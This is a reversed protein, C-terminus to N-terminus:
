FKPLVKQTEHFKNLYLKLNVLNKHLSTNSSPQPFQKIVQLCLWIGLLLKFWMFVGGLILSPFKSFWQNGFPFRRKWPRMKLHVMNFKRPTCTKRHEFIMLNTWSAIAVCSWPSLVKSMAVFVTALVWSFFLFFFFTWLRSQHFSAVTKKEYGDDHKLFDM